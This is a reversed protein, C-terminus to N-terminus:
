RVKGQFSHRGATSLSPLTIHYPHDGEELAFFRGAHYLVATNARGHREGTESDKSRLAFQQQVFKAREMVATDTDSGMVKHFGTLIQEGIEAFAGEQGLNQDTLFRNTRVWRNTYSVKGGCTNVGHLM